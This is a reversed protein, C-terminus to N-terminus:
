SGGILFGKVTFNFTKKYGLSLLNSSGRSNKQSTLMARQRLAFESRDSTKYRYCRWSDCANCDLLVEGTTLFLKRYFERFSNFFRISLRIFV